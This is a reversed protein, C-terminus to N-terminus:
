PEKNPLHDKLLRQNHAKVLDERTLIGVVQRRNEPLVVPLFSFRHGEFINKVSEFNDETTITVAPSSELEQAVILNGLSRM